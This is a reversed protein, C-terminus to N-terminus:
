NYIIIYFMNNTAISIVLCLLLIKDFCLCFYLDNEFVDCAREREKKM